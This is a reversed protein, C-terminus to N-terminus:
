NSASCVIRFGLYYCQSSAFSYSWDSVECRDDNDYCSGGRDYRLDSYYPFIDWCWEWVNGSMDYLGYGNAKKQAVPHTRNGSNYDYWGVEDLNNSGSYTYNQGGKAAYEWEEVTPLRFGNAKTNQTVEGRISNGKHPTYNWTAVDTKGDVAYVPTFGLKKSLKNCFYIADYWSVEEVPNNEGINRSPNEGMVDLYLSQTVETKLMTFKTKPIKVFMTLIRTKNELEVYSSFAKALPHGQQISNEFWRQLKIAEPLPM